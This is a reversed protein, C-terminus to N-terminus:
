AGAAVMASFGGGSHCGACGASTGRLYAEGEGHLSTEWQTVKGTILSTDDHCETCTQFEAPVTYEAEASSGSSSIAAIIAFLAILLVPALFTGFKIRRKQKISMSEGKPSQNRGLM